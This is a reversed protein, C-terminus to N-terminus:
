KHDSTCGPELCYPCAEYAELLMKAEALNEMKERAELVQYHNGHEIIGKIQAEEMEAYRQVIRMMTPTYTKKFLEIEM